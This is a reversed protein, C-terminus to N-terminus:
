ELEGIKCKEVDARLIVQHLLQSKQLQFRSSASPIGARM